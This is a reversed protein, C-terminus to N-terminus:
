GNSDEELTELLSELREQVATVQGKLENLEKRLSVINLQKSERKDDYEPQSDRLTVPPTPTTPLSTIGIQTELEIIRRMVKPSPSREGKRLYHLGTVTIGLAQALEKWEEVRAVKLRHLREEM